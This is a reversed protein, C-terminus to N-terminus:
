PFFSTCGIPSLNCSKRGRYTAGFSQAADEIVTLGYKEAVANIADMDPTQGYLSVPIIAKTRPTLAAEIHAADINCTDPKIDVFVPTAGTLAIAEATAAFTFATTVVEDSPGIDLAMLSILLAETGSAVTICHKAGTYSELSEGLDRVEPGMIYRGHDLVRQIRADIDTKLLKYQTKLDVFDIM